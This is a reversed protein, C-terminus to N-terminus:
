SGFRAPSFPTLDFRPPVGLILDSVAAASVPGLQLGSPGHGTAVFINEWGPLAGLIPQEDRSFPRLGVRMELLTAPRLGEAVRFAEGLVEAVGGATFTPDFGADHERTAGCVVRSTPFTLIYHSHFGSIIPWGSTDQGRMELHIIQGRQPYVDLRVGLREGLAASWAGGCILVQGAAIREGAVEVGIARGGDTLITARGVAIKAGHKEAAARLSDRILRGNVRAPGTQHIAAPLDSLAPFLEKAERGTLLTIEGINGIGTERRSRMRALMESLRAAEDDDRAVFLSGVTAYGTNTEGDAALETLLRPYYDIAARAIDLGAPTLHVSSGPAIIGAGANTATGPELADAVLVRQDARALRYAAAWGLLGGGVIATDTM